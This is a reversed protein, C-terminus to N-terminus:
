KIIASVKDGLKAGPVAGMKLAKGIATKDPETITKVRLYEAPLAKEDTIEVPHTVRFSVDARVGRFREGDCASVLYAKLRNSKNEAAKRRAALKKEEANLAAAEAELNKIYCGINEVKEAKQMELFTLQEEDLSVTIEGTDLDIEEKVCNMIAANIEYLTM